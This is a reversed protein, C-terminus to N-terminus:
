VVSHVRSQLLAWGDHDLFASDSTVVGFQLGDGDMEWSLNGRLVNQEEKEQHGHCPVAPYQVTFFLDLGRCYDDSIIFFLNM